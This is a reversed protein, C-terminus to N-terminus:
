RLHPIYTVHLHMLGHTVTMVHWQSVDVVALLPNGCTAVIAHHLEPIAPM